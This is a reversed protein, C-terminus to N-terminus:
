EYEVVGGGFFLGQRSVGAYRQENYIPGCFIRMEVSAAPEFSVDIRSAGLIWANDSVSYLCRGDAYVKATYPIKIGHDEAVLGHCQYTKRPYATYVDMKLAGDESYASRTGRMDTGRGFEMIFSARSTGTVCYRHVDTVFQADSKMNTSKQADHGIYEVQGDDGASCIGSFGKMQLLSEYKHESTGSLSDFIVVADDLVALLRTTKIPETFETLEGYPAADYSDLGCANFEARERLTEGEKDDYIMGGFPPYSWKATTTVACASFSEGTYFLSLKSDSPYQMKEDVVVMNKTGSTQVYFKYMFHRYGWWVHEPNYFSRGYRMLSLLETRDFHGHAFGHSGYRLVAQIREREDKGGGRVMAVGINNSYAGHSYEDSAEPLVAHGFIPDPHGNEELLKIVNIYSPDRYYTYALDYTSGFHAVGLRNEASDNIGFLVGRYDLFRIPADFIDKITVYNKSFGGWRENYMGHNIAKEENPVAATVERGYTVPFREHLIDIGYPLLARATHIMMSSVWTNYSVSCEYWWGDPFLGHRLQFLVGGNGYVFRMVREFDGMVMACYVAGTVESIIWNSIHGCRIHGDLIDMYLRFCEELARKEDPPMVGSPLIMDYALALHQIFHGEQVYAQSCGRKKVPYGDAPNTFNRFFEAIKEAYRVEGTLSYLYACSMVREEERTDFCYGREHLPLECPVTWEDALSKYRDYECSFKDNEAIKRATERWGDATHYIFPHPIECLTSFTVTESGASDGDPTFKLTTDEHGGAPVGEPVSVKLELSADGYAPIILKEESLAAPFSEWGEIVSSVSVIIGRGTCNGVTVGYIVCKGAAAAKGRVPASVSIVRGKKIKAGTLKIDGVIEIRSLERWVNEKSTPQPFDCFAVDILHEGTGLADIEKTLAGGDYFGATVSFCTRERASIFSLSLGYMEMADLAIDNKTDFGYPYRGVAGEGVPYSFTVSGHATDDDREWLDFIDIVNM